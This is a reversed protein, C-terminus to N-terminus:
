LKRGCYPCYKWYAPMGSVFALRNCWCIEKEKWAHCNEITKLFTRVHGQSCQIMRQGQPNLKNWKCNECIMNISPNLM